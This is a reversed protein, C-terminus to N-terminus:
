RLRRIMAVATAPCAGQFEASARLSSPVDERSVSAFGRRAFFAEATTTLLGVAQLGLAAAHGLAFEVLSGGIGKSRTEARTALSRLLAADGHVELAVSGVVTEHGDPSVAVWTTEWHDSLGAEPLGSAALLSLVQAREGAGCRRIEPSFETPKIPRGTM